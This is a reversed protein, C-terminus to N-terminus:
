QEMADKVGALKIENFNKYSNRASHFGPEPPRTCKILISLCKKMM